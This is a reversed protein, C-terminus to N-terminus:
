QIEHWRCQCHQHVRGRLRIPNIFHRGWGNNRMNTQISENQLLRRSDHTLPPRSVDNLLGKTETHKVSCQFTGCTTSPNKSSSKSHGREPNFPYYIAERLFFACTPAGACVMSAVHSARLSGPNTAWFQVDSQHKCYETPKCLKCMKVLSVCRGNLKYLAAFRFHSSSSPRDYRIVFAFIVSRTNM